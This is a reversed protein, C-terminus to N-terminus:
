FDDPNFEDELIDSHFRRIEEIVCEDHCYAFPCYDCVIDCAKGLTM